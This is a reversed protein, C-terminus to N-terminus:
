QKIAKKMMDVAIGMNSGSYFSGVYFPCGSKIRKRTAITSEFVADLVIKDGCKETFVAIKSDITAGAIRSKILEITAITM